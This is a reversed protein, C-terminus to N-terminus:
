ALEGKPEATLSLQERLRLLGRQIHSKVTGLPIGLTDAAEEHTYGGCACLMIAKRALEPMESIAVHAAKADVVDELAASLAPLDQHEDLEVTRVTRGRKRLRDIIRRRAITAIFTVETGRSADFMGASRWVDVFIDQVLDDVEGSSASTAGFNRRCLSWVLSGYREMCERMARRDGAAVQGLLSEVVPSVPVARRIAYREFATLIWRVPGLTPRARALDNRRQLPQQLSLALSDPHLRYRPVDWRQGGGPRESAVPARARQLREGFAAQTRHLCTFFATLETPMTSSERAADCRIRRSVFLGCASRQGRKPTFQACAPPPSLTSDYATRQECRDPGLAREDPM